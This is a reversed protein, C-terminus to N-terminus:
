IDEAIDEGMERAADRLAKIMATIEDSRVVLSEKVGHQPDRTFFKVCEEGHFSRVEIDLTENEDLRPCSVLQKVLISAEPEQDM